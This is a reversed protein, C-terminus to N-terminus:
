GLCVTRSINTGTKDTYLQVTSWWGSVLPHWSNIALISNIFEQIIKKQSRQWTGYWIAHITVNATLVPGMHYKMHVFELSSTEFKKSDGFISDLQAKNKNHPWPHWAITPSLFLLVTVTLLMLYLSAFGQHM